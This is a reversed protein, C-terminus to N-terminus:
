NKLWDRRPPSFIDLVITDEVVRDSHEIGAPIHVIDGARAELRSQESQDTASGKVVITMQESAMRHAPFAVGGPVFIQSLMMNDTTILQRTIGGGLQEVAVDQWKYLKMPKEEPWPNM